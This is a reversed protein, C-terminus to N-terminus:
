VKWSAGLSWFAIPDPFSSVQQMKVRKPRDEQPAEAESSSFVPELVEREWGYYLVLQCLMRYYLCEALSNRGVRPSAGCVLMPAPSFLSILKVPPRALSPFHMMTTTMHHHMEMSKGFKGIITTSSAPVLACHPYLELKKSSSWNLTSIGSFSIVKTQHNLCIKVKGVLILGVTHWM